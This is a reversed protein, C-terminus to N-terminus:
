WSAQYFYEGSNNEVVKELAEATRIIERLYYEDYDTSGFFFGEKSPLLNEAVSPDEIYEGDELISEWEKTKPNIRRGNKIKGKVLKSNAIVEKCLELLDKLKEKSVPWEGSQDEEDMVHDVFWKHIANAKRWYIVEETIYSIKKPDIDERIKNGQKVLVQHKESPKMHDWNKVYTRKELYMDLGM